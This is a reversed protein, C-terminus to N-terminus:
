DNQKLGMNKHALEYGAFTYRTLERAYTGDPFQLFDFHDPFAVACEAEFKVQLESKVAKKPESPKLPEIPMYYVGADHDIKYEKTVPQLRLVELAGYLLDDIEDLVSLRRDARMNQAEIWAVNNMSVIGPSIDFQIAVENDNVHKVHCITLGRATLDDNIRRMMDDVNNFNITRM